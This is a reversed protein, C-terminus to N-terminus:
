KKGKDEYMLGDICKLFESVTQESKESYCEYGLSLSIQYPVVSQENFHEVNEKLRVIANELYSRDKIVMLVIFEDGGYRVIFDNERFTKKLIKATDQLAQDGIDHGYLDNIEKFCDLDIMIGALLDQELNQLVQLLYNDMQRRNFLGTLYDTYLQSNQINIFVILISLTMCVWVLTIGYYMTQIVAGIYPPFVFILFPIFDRKQLMNRKVIIMIMTYALYFFGIGAMLYFLNGRHYINNKDIYFMWGNFISLLSLVLNIGAPIIMPVLMKKLHKESKYIQYDAYFYWIVSIAPNLAYYCATLFPYSAGVLLGPKGDLLWLIIDWVLILANSFLMAMFLKQELLFKVASRRINLYILLLIALAFCDIEIIEFM